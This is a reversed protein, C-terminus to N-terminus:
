TNGGNSRCIVRTGGTVGWRDKRREIAQGDHNDALKTRGEYGGMDRYKYRGGDIIGNKSIRNREPPERKDRGPSPGEKKKYPPNNRQHRHPEKNKDQLIPPHCCHAPSTDKDQGQNSPKSQPPTNRPKKPDENTKPKETTGARAPTTYPAEAGKRKSEARRRL